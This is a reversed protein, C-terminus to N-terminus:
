YLKPQLSVRFFDSKSGLFTFILCIILIIKCTEREIRAIASSQTIRGIRKWRERSGGIRVKKGVRRKESRQCSVADCCGIQRCEREKM